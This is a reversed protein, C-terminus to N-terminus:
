QIRDIGLRTPIVRADLIDHGRKVRFILHHHDGGRVAGQDPIHLRKRPQLDSTDGFLVALALSARESPTATDPKLKIVLTVPIQAICTFRCTFRNEIQRGDFRWGTDHRDHQASAPRPNQQVFGNAM